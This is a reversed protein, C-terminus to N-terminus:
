QTLTLRILQFEAPKQMAFGIVINLKGQSLDTNTMTEGLGCQVFFAQEPKTGVLAGARYLSMLFSSVCSRVARWTPESNPEFVVWQLSNRVSQEIYIATRQVSVYRGEAQQASALTRAGWVVTGVAPLRRICNIGLPNLQQQLRETVTFALDVVNAVAADVGAPAKWVGHKLDNKGYLAAAIAAPPVYREATNVSSANLAFPDAIAVWPYYLAAYASLPLKLASVASSSTLECDPALDLLLMAIRYHQCFVLSARIIDNSIAAADAQWYQGPLVLMSFASYQLMSHYFRRYDTHQLTAGDSGYQLRAGDAANKGMTATEAVTFPPSFDAAYQRNVSVRILASHSNIQREAFYKNGAVVSLASFQELRIYKGTADQQGVQLDFTGAACNSNQVFVLLTNGWRGESRAQVQLVGPLLEGRTSVGPLDVRACRRGNGALRCVLAQQGGNLYFTNVAVSMADAESGFHQVYQAFSSILVPEGVRGRVAPGVFAAIATNIGTIAQVGAPTEEIYVGPQRYDAM